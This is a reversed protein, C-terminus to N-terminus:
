TRSSNVFLCAMNARSSSRWKLWDFWGAACGNIRTNEIIAMAEINVPLRSASSEFVIDLADESIGRDRVHAIQQNREQDAAWMPAPATM